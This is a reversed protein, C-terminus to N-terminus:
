ESAVEEDDAGRGGAVARPCPDICAPATSGNDRRDTATTMTDRKCEWCVPDDDPWLELYEALGLNEDVIVQCVHCLAAGRGNNFRYNDTM